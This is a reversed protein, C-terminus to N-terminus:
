RGEVDPEMRVWVGNEKHLGILTPPDDGRLRDVILYWEPGALLYHGVKKEESVDNDRYDPSVVEVVLVPRTGEDACIFSARYRAPDDIGFIVSIDPSHHGISPVGWYMGMDHVVLADTRDALLSKFSDRLLTVDDDHVNSIVAKDGFGPHLLDDLTLPVEDFTVGGDAAPRPVLRVGYRHLREEPSLEPEAAAATTM